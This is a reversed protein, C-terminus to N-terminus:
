FSCVLEGNERVPMRKEKKLRGILVPNRRIWCEPLVGRVPRLEGNLGLEGIFSFDAVSNAPLNETAVLIGIAMPLDYSSGEKKIHAPALNVTIRMMPFVFGSNKIAAIVRERAERVSADPLGVISFAPLGPRFDVEVTVPYGDIGHVAASSISSLM